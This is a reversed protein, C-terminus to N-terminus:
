DAFEVQTKGLETFATTTAESIADQVDKNKVKQVLVKDYSQHVSLDADHERQRPIFFRVMLENRISQISDYVKSDDINLQFETKKDLIDHALGILASTFKPPSLILLFDKALLSM